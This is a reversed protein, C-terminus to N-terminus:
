NIINLRLLDIIIIDPAPIETLQPIGSKRESFTRFLTKKLKGDDLVFVLKITLYIEVKNSWIFLFDVFFWPCFVTETRPYLM